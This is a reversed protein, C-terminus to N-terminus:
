SQDKSTSTLSRAIDWLKTKKWFVIGEDTPFYSSGWHRRVVSYLRTELSWRKLQLRVVFKSERLYKPFILHMRVVTEKLKGVNEQLLKAITTLQHRNRIISFHPFNEFSCNTPQSLFLFYLSFLNFNVLIHSGGEMGMYAKRRSKGRWVHGRTGHAESDKINEGFRHFARTKHRIMKPQSSCQYLRLFNELYWSELNGCIHQLQEKFTIQAQKTRTKEPVPWWESGEEKAM